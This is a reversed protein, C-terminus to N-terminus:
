FNVAVLDALGDDDEQMSLAALDAFGSGLSGPADQTMLGFGHGAYGQDRVILGGYGQLQVAVTESLFPVRGAIMGYVFPAASAVIAGAALSGANMRNLGPIKKGFAGLSAGALIAGLVPWWNDIQARMPTISVSGDAGVTPKFINDVVFRKLLGSVALGALGGVIIDTSKGGVPKGLPNLSALKFAM